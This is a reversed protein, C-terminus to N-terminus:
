QEMEFVEICDDDIGLVTKVAYQLNLKVAIDEAGEAVVIVGRVLPQVETLVIPENGGNKSITAPSSSETNTQSESGDSGSSSNQQTDTSMAPVLRSTTEYTIMVEVRGVGKIGSLTKALREELGSETSVSVESVVVDNDKPEEPSKPIITSVYILVAALGLAVYIAIELKKNGKIKAILTDVDENQGANLRM